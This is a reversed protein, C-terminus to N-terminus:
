DSKRFAFLLQHGFLGPSLRCFLRNIDSRLQPSIFFRLGPIPIWGDAAFHELVFGHQALLQTLSQRTYWRLHTYDFTGSQRYTWHGCFLKLRDPWFFLNPIAVLLHGRPQLVRHLDALLTQPYAIHELVHSCIVLDYAEAHIQPLGHNLDCALVARCHAKALELEHPNWSIGDVTIAKRRLWAAMGGRGCGVDLACRTGPPIFSQLAPNHGPYLAAFRPDAPSPNPLPMDM